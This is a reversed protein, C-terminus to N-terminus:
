RGATQAKFPNAGAFPIGAIDTHKVPELTLHNLQWERQSWEFDTIRYFEPSMICPQLVWHENTDKVDPVLNGAMIEEPLVLNKRLIIRADLRYVTIYEQVNLDVSIAKICNGISDTFCVRPTRDDEGFAISVPIRPVFCKVGPSDIRDSVHYLIKDPGRGPMTIEPRQM